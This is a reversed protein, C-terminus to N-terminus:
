RLLGLLKTSGWVVLTVYIICSGIVIRSYSRETMSFGFLRDGSEIAVQTWRRRAALLIMASIVSGIVVFVALTMRDPHTFQQEWSNIGLSRIILWAGALATVIGILVIVAKLFSLSQQIGLVARNLCKTYQAYGSRFVICLISTVLLLVGVALEM